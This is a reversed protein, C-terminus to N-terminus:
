GNSKCKLAFSTYLVGGVVTGGGRGKAVGGGCAAVSTDTFQVNYVANWGAVRLENKSGDVADIGKWVGAFPYKNVALPAAAMALVSFVLIMSLAVMRRTLKM